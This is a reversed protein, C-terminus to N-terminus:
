RKWVIRLLFCGTVILAVHCIWLSYPPLCSLRALRFEVPYFFMMIPLYSIFFRSIFDRGRLLIALPLGFCTFSFCCFGQSVRRHVFCRLRFLSYEENKLRKRLDGREGVDRKGDGAVTPGAQQQLALHKLQRVYLAQSEIKAPLQRLTFNDGIHNGVADRVPVHLTVDDRFRLSGRNRITVIGNDLRVLLEDGTEDLNLIGVGASASFVPNGSPSYLMTPEILKRGDVDKVWVSLNECTFSRESRLHRYAIEPASQAVVRHIGDKGWSNGLDMLWITPITMIAACAFAPALPRLPSIGSSSIALLENSLSMSGYVTCVSLLWAASMSYALARPLVFPVLRFSTSATLGYEGKAEALLLGILLFTLASLSLVFIKCLERTIFRTLM